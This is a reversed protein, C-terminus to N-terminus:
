KILLEEDDARKIAGSASILRIRKRFAKCYWSPLNPKPLVANEYNTFQGVEVHMSHQKDSYFMKANAHRWEGNSM